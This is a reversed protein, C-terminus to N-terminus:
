KIVRNIFFQDEHLGELLASAIEEASPYDDVSSPLVVVIAGNHRQRPKLDQWIIVLELHEPISLSEVLIFEVFLLFIFLQVLGCQPGEGLASM